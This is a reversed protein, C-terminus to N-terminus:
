SLRDHWRSLYGRAWGLARPYQESFAQAKGIDGREWGGLYRVAVLFLLAYVLGAAIGIWGGAMWWSFANGAAAPLSSAGDTTAAGSTAAITAVTGTAQQLLRVAGFAGLAALGAALSIGGLARLPVRMDLMRVLLGLGALYLVIRSAVFAALAGILGYAPVLLVALLLSAILTGASFLARLRQNDTTSLLAGFAAEGLTAGKAILMWQLIATVPAYDAGYVLRVVAESWFAGVGAALLGLFQFYRLSDSLIADVRERGGAGFAHSMVPMLVSTLGSAVMDIAGRTLSLAIVFYGVEVPGVLRNLLYIEASANSFAVVMALVITWLLHTRLRSMLDADIPAAPQDGADRRLLWGALAWYAISAAVFLWLFADLALGLWWFLVVVAANIVSVILTSYAEITFRGQGKGISIEFLFMAKAATAVAVVVLFVWLVDVGDAPLLAVHGALFAALVAVLAVWQWRALWRHIPRADRDQGLAEAVFRIGTTTLGNNAVITLVGVLWVVYAYHGYDRPGLHRAILANVVLGIAFAIYTSGTMLLAARIAAVSGFRSNM